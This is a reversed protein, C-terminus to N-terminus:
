FSPTIRTIEPRNRLVGSACNRRTPFWRRGQPFKNALQKSQGSQSKLHRQGTQGMTSSVAQPCVQRVPSVLHTVRYETRDVGKEKRIGSSDARLGAGPNTSQACAIYPMMWPPESRPNLLSLAANMLARGKSPKARPPVSPLSLDHEEKRQQGESVGSRRRGRESV